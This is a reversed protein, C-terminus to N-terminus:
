CAAPLPIAYRHSCCSSLVGTGLLAPQDSCPHCSEQFLRTMVFSSKILMEDENVLYRALSPHVQDSRQRALGGVLPQFIAPIVNRDAQM